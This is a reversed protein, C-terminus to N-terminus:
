TTKLRALAQGAVRGALATISSAVTAAPPVLDPSVGREALAEETPKGIVLVTKGKLAEMGWLADFAEVASASAFFVTDFGPCEEYRIAENRYLICDDVDAGLERLADALEPGAKDSRLRLVRLGPTVLPAVAEMVGATSFASEPAIDAHFGFELLQRSTGSGCSVLKPVTRVDVDAKRLLEAFSRVASPSTLVVWDYRSLDRVRATAEDTTVLAILPRCVPVGGFDTVLGAARDQLSQSATLLVRQGRLAGWETGYGYRVVDGVLLLGPMATETAAVKEGITALDGSVTMAQDGGAGFVVAAPTQPSMGEGILDQAIKATVSVAMYFVIPLKARADATIPAVGGGKMRPTMVCFGRSVGRRTLLMGTGTTAASLSSVGPLVRYPLHLADLAEVEEALRGFVGPDGGKLRVVRLGKRAYLTIRDTIVDQPVSHSGSRKGVYVCEVGSPLLGVLDPGLLADHLCIDARRLAELSELTCTGASGIGAAAFTVAKVLVSRLRLVREDGARFTMALAGQAEPPRLANLPIWETIREALGLRKLACGAMIVLDYTGADLQELRQEINGRIPVLRAAPFRERAYTERRGSSVGIVPAEPLDHMGTRAPRILVDRPDERWPMWCWDLGEPAPDPVDKASHIAIDLEGSLVKEDLDRTFFDAPSERLDTTRDRDGPSSVVVEEFRCGPLREELRRLTDRTQVLALRSGRTGARLAVIPTADSM